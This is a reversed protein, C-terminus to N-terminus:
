LQHYVICRIQITQENGLLGSQLLAGVLLECLYNNVVFANEKVQSLGVMAPQAKKNDMFLTMVEGV